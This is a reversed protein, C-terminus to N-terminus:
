SPARRLRNGPTLFTLWLADTGNAVGVALKMGHYDALEQEFREIM